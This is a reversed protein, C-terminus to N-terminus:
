RDRAHLQWSDEPSLWAEKGATATLLWSNCPWFCCRCKCLPLILDVHSERKNLPKSPRACLAACQATSGAPQGSQGHGDTAAHRLQLHLCPCYHDPQGASNPEQLCHISPQASPVQLNGCSVDGWILCHTCADAGGQVGPLMPGPLLAQFHLRGRQLLNHQSFLHGHWDM